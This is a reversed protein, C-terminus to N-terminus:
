FTNWEGRGSAFSPSLFHFDGLATEDRKAHKAKQQQQGNCGETSGECFFCSPDSYRVVPGFIMQEEVALCQGFM